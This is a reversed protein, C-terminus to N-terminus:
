FGGTGFPTQANESYDRFFGFRKSYSIMDTGAAGSFGDGFDVTFHISSLSGDKNFKLDQYKLTIGRAAMNKQTKVLSELTSAPTFTVEIRKDKRPASNSKFSNFGSAAILIIAIIALKFLHKMVVLQIILSASFIFSKGQPIPLYFDWKISPFFVKRGPFLRLYQIQNKKISGNM